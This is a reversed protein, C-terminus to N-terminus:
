SMYYLLTQLVNAPTRPSPDGPVNSDQRIPHTVELTVTRCIPCWPKKTRDDSSSAAATRESDHRANACSLSVRTRDGRADFGTWIDRMEPRSRAFRREGKEQEVRPFALAQVVLSLMCCSPLLGSGTM